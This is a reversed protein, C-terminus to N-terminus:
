AKQTLPSMDLIIMDDIMRQRLPSVQQSMSSQQRNSQALLGRPSLNFVLSKREGDGRWALTPFGINGPRDFTTRNLWERGGL